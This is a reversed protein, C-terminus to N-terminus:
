RSVELRDSRSELRNTNRWLVKRVNQKEILPMMEGAIKFKQKFHKRELELSKANVKNRIIAEDLRSLLNDMVNM